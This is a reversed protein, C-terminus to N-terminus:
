GHRKRVPRYRLCSCRTQRIADNVEYVKMMLSDSYNSSNDLLERLVIEIRELALKGCRCRKEAM